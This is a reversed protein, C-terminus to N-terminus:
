GVSTQWCPLFGDIQLQAFELPDLKWLSDEYDAGFRGDDSIIELDYWEDYGSGRIEELFAPVGAIGDGAVIRDL